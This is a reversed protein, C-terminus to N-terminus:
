QVVLKDGRNRFLSLNALHLGFVFLFLVFQIDVGFLQIIMFEATFFAFISLYVFESHHSYSHNTSLIRRSSLLILIGLIMYLFVMLLGNEILLRIVGSHTSIEWNLVETTGNIGVGFLVGFVNFRSFEDLARVLFDTRGGLDEFDNEMFRRFLLVDSSYVSMVTDALFGLVLVGAFVTILYGLHRGAKLVYMSFFSVITVVVGTRGGALGIGYVLLIASGFFIIRMSNGVNRRILFYCAFLGHGMFVGAGTSTAFWSNMRWFRENYEIHIPGFDLSSLHYTYIGLVTAIVSTFWILLAYYKVLRGFEEWNQSRSLVLLLTVIVVVCTFLVNDFHHPVQLTSVIVVLMLSFLCIAERAKLMSLRPARRKVIVTSFLALSLFALALICAEKGYELGGFDTGGYSSGYTGLVIIM